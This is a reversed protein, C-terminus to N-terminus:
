RKPAPRRTAVVPPRLPQRSWSVVRPAPSAAVVADIGGSWGAFRATVDVAVGGERRTVRSSVRGGGLPREAVGAFAPDGALGALTAALGGDALATLTTRREEAAVAAFRRELSAHLTMAALGVIASVLIAIVLAVGRRKTGLKVM